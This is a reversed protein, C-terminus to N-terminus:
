NESLKGQEVLWRVFDQRKDRPFHESRKGDAVAHRLRKLSSREAETFNFDSVAEELHVAKRARPARPAKPTKLIDGKAVAESVPEPRQPCEQQAM